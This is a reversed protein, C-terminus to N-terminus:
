SKLIFKSLFRHFHQSIKLLTFELEFIIIKQMIKMVGIEPYEFM